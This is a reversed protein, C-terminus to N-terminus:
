VSIKPPSHHRIHRDALTQSSYESRCKRFKCLFKYEHEDTVHINLAQTSAFKKGCLSYKRTMHWRRRCLIYKKEKVVQTKRKKCCKPKPKKMETSPPSPPPHPPISIHYVAWQDHSEVILTVSKQRRM